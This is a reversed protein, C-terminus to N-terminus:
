KVIPMSLNQWYNRYSKQKLGSFFHGGGITTHAQGKTGPVNKLWQKEFGNTVPDNGAGICIFPKEFKKFLGPKKRRKCLNIQFPPCRVPCPVRGMKYAPTPFPAEMAKSLSTRFPSIKRLGIYGTFLELALALKNRPEMM